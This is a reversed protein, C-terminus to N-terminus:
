SAKDLIEQMIECFIMERHDAGFFSADPAASFAIHGTKIYIRATNPEKQPWVKRMKAQLRTKVLRTIRGIDRNRNNKNFM